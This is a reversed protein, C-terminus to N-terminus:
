EYQGYFIDIMRPPKDMLVTVNNPIDKELHYTVKSELKQASESFTTTKELQPVRNGNEIKYVASSAPYRYQILSERIPHVDKTLCSELKTEQVFKGVRTITVLEIRDIEAIDLDPYVENGKGTFVWYREGPFLIPIHLLSLKAAKCKSKKDLFSYRFGADLLPGEGVSTLNPLFVLGVQLPVAPFLGFPIGFDSTILQAMKRNQEAFAAKMELVRANEIAQVFSLQEEPEMNISLFELRVGYGIPSDLMSGIRERHLIDTDFEKKKLREKLIEREGNTLYQNTVFVLGDAGNSKLKESDDDFKKRTEKFEVDGNPFYVAAVWKKGYKRAVLDKGGDPGGLPHIPDVDSYGFLRLLQGALRESNSSKGWNRLRDVTETGGTRRNKMIIFAGKVVISPRECKEM